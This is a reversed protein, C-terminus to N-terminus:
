GLCALDGQYTGTLNKCIVWVTFDAHQDKCPSIAPSLLTLLLPRIRDENLPEPMALSSPSPPSHAQEISQLPLPPLDLHKWVQRVIPFEETAVCQKAASVIYSVDIAVSKKNKVDNLTYRTNDLESWAQGPDQLTKGFMSM